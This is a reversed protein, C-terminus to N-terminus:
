TKQSTISLPKEFRLRNRWSVTSAVSTTMELDSNTITGNPNTFTIFKEIIRSTFPPWWILPKITGDPLPVFQVGGMDSTAVDLAGLPVPQRSPVVEVIQTSWWELYSALWRFVGLVAHVPNTLRVRSNDDCKHTLVERLISFLGNDGPIAMVVSRLEGM